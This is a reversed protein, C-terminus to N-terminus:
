CGKCLCLLDFSTGHIGGAEWTWFLDISFIICGTENCWLPPLMHQQPVTNCESGKPWGHCSWGEEAPQSLSRAHNWLSDFASTWSSMSAHELPLPPPAPRQCHCISAFIHHYNHISDITVLVRCDPPPVVAVVVEVDSDTDLSMGSIERCSVSLTLRTTYTVWASWM